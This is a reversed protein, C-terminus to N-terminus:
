YFDHKEPGLFAVIVFWIDVCELVDARILLDINRVEPTAPFPGLYRLITNQRRRQRLCYTPNSLSVMYHIM